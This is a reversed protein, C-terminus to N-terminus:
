IEVIQEDEDVEQIAPQALVPKVGERAESWEGAGSEATGEEDEGEPAEDRQLFNVLRVIHESVQTM